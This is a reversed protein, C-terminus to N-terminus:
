STVTVTFTKSDTWLGDSVTVTIRLSSVWALDRIIMLTNGTLTLVAHPENAPPNTLRAPDDYYGSGVTGLLIGTAGSGGDRRYLDGNAVIFYSQGSHAQLWTEGRGGSNDWGSFYTL